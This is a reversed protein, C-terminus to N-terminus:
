RARNMEAEVKAIDEPVDVEASDYDTDVVKIKFGNELARLQELRELSELKGEPLSSLRALFDMRYAYIGLHKYHRGASKDERCFPIPYRSFYLALGRRDTVVKVQNPNNLAGPDKILCKLTAMPIDTDKLLPEVLNSILAPRLLPQDGQINVVVDEDAVGTKRAAENIRDTGSHHEAATMIVRGGFAEVAERIREDDTAVYVAELEACALAREYVHQIMPKGAIPAVPKGPFRTSGYRAPIFALIKM